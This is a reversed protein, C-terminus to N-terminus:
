KEKIYTLSINTHMALGYTHATPVYSTAHLYVAKTNYNELEAETGSKM